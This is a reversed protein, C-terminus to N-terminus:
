KMLPTYTFSYSSEFSEGNLMKDATKVIQNGDEGREPAATVSLTGDNLLEIMEASEGAGVVYLDEGPLRGADRIAEISAVTLGADTCVLVELDRGYTALLAACAVSAAESPNECRRTELRSAGFLAEELSECQLTADQDEASGALIAYCITGDGNLDGSDPLRAFCAAQANGLNGPDASIYCVKEGSQPPTGTYNLFIVATNERKDSNLIESASASILPEVIVLDYKESYLKHVQLIQGQQDTNEVFVSVQHGLAELSSQLYQADVSTNKSVCIGIKKAKNKKCGTLPVCLTCLILLAAICRKM